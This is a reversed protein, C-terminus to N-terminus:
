GPRELSVGLDFFHAPIDKMRVAAAKSLPEILDHAM